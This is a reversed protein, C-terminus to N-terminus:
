LADISTNVQVSALSNEDILVSLPSFIKDTPKSDHLQESQRAVAFM